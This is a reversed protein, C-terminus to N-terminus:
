VAERGPDRRPKAPLAGGAIAATETMFSDHVVLLEKQKLREAVDPDQAPDLHSSVLARATELMAPYAYNAHSPLVGLLELGRSNAIPGVLLVKAGAARAFALAADTAERSALVTGGLVVVAREAGKLGDAVAGLAEPQLGTPAETGGAL